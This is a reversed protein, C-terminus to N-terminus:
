AILSRPPNGSPTHFRGSVLAEFASRYDATINTTM